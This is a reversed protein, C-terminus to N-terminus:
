GRLKLFGSLVTRLLIESADNKAINGLRIEQWGVFLLNYIVELIWKASLDNILQGNKQCEKIFNLIPEQLRKEEEVVDKNIHAYTTGLFSIKNGLPIMLDFLNKLSTAADLPDLQLKQFAEKVLGTANMALEDLLADRNSFHRHLTAIGINSYDAIEQLTAAPKLALLETALNLISEHKFDKKSNKSEM